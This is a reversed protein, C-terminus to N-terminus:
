YCKHISVTNSYLWHLRFARFAKPHSPTSTRRKIGKINVHSSFSLSFTLSGTLQKLYSILYVHIFFASFPLLMHVSAWMFSTFVNFYAFQLAQLLELTFHSTCLQWLSCLSTFCTHVSKQHLWSYCVFDHLSMIVWTLSKVSIFDDPYLHTSDITVAAQIQQLSSFMVHIVVLFSLKWFTKSASNFYLLM